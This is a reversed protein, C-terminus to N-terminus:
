IMVLCKRNKLHQSIELPKMTRHNIPKCLSIEHNRLVESTGAGVDGGNAHCPRIQSLGAAGIVAILKM